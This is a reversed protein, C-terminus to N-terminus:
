KTRKKQKAARPLAVTDVHGFPQPACRFIQLPHLGLVLLKLRLCVAFESCSVWARWGACGPLRGNVVRALRNPAKRVMGGVRTAQVVARARESGTVPVGVM